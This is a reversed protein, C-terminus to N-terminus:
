SGSAMLMLIERCIEKVEKNVRIASIGEDPIGYIVCDGDEALEICALSALDEEGEVEIKVNKDSRSARLIANWLEVALRGPPNEVRLIMGPAKHLRYIIDSNCPGRQSRFDYIMVDPVIGIDLLSVTVIDGVAFIRGCGRLHGAVEHSAIVPGIPKALKKRIINPLLLDKKLSKDAFVFPLNGTSM